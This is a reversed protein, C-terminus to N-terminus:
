PGSPIRRDRALNEMRPSFGCHRWLRLKRQEDDPWATPPPGSWDHYYFLSNNENIIVVYKGTIGPEEPYACFGFGIMNHVKGSVGDTDQRYIRAPQVSDDRDLAASYHGHYPLPESHAPFLRKPDSEALGREILAIPIGGSKV